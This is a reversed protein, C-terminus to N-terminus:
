VGLNVHLAGSFGQAPGHGPELRCLVPLQRNGITSRRNGITSQRNDIASQRNGISSQRNGIASRLVPIDGKV